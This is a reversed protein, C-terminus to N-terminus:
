FHGFKPFLCMLTLNKARTPDPETPMSLLWLAQILFSSTESLLSELSVEEEQQFSILFVSTVGAGWTCPLFIFLCNSLIHGGFAGFCPLNLLNPAMNKNM